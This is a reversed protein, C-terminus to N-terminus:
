RQGPYQAKLNRLPQHIQCLHNKAGRKAHAKGPQAPSQDQAPGGQRDHRHRHHQCNAAGEGRDQVPDCCLRDIHEQDAKRGTAHGFHRKDCKAEIGVRGKDRQMM